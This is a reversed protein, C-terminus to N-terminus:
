GPTMRALARVERALAAPGAVPRAGAVRIRGGVAFATGKRSLVWRIALSDSEDDGAYVIRGGEPDFGALGCLRRVGFSKDVSRLFQAEAAGPGRFVRVAPRRSLESLLPLLAPLADPPVGRYHIAMSWRKDELEVGPIASIRSMVPLVARRARMAKADTNGAPGIRRGDPMRWELGSGGGLYLHPFPVRPILDELTRSSLVAVLNGPGASLAKLLSRSAPHLRAAARDPVLPALTGDFDFAWLRRGGTGTTRRAM